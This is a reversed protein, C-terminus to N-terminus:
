PHDKGLNQAMLDCAQRILVAAEKKRGEKRRITALQVLHDAARPDDRGMTNDVIAMSQNM